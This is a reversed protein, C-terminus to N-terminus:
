APDITVVPDGAATTVTATWASTTDDEQYVTLTGASIAQKNRLARLSNRVNRSSASSGGVLDRNLVEDAIEQAASQALEASGIADTAIAAADIAGAAFSTSAIGGNAISYGTKDNNTTVTVGSTVSGVAGTVSGVSGTLSGTFTTTLSTTITTAANTGAIFVGGASGATASPLYDTKTKVATVLNVVDGATQSTGNVKLVDVRGSTDVSLPLGGNAGAAANPMATLGLRVSDTPDFAIVEHIFQTPDAGTATCHFGIPGNTNTETGTLAVKYFGNAIETVSNSTAAFTGGNKTINATVTLGTKASFHDSSDVMIFVITPTSGNKILM